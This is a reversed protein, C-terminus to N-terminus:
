VIGKKKLGKILNEVAEMEMRLRSEKAYSGIHSTLIVNDFKKLPGTYPENEFTDLAAGALDGNKLAEILAKEDILGGRSANVIIASKRMHSLEERGIIHHNESSAPLHLTVIDSKELLERLPKLEINQRNMFNIDPHPDTAFIKLNFPKVLEVLKKGIRGLGIIGITKGSLLQGMKPKWIGERISRDVQPIGRYLALILGLTLESVALSLADPTNYVSIAYKEAAHLDINDLGTGARSIVKLSDANKLLTETIQETGAIMGVAGKGLESLENEKLKRGYPNLVLDFGSKKLEEIPQNDSKGFSRSSVLIKM